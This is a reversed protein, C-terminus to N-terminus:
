VPWGSLSNSIFPLLIFGATSVGDWASINLNKSPTFLTPLILLGAWTSRSPSLTLLWASSLKSMHLLSLPYVPWLINVISSGPLLFLRLGCLLHINHILVYFPNTHCFPNYSCPSISASPGGHHGRFHASFSYGAYWINFTGAKGTFYCVTNYFFLYYDISNVPCSCPARPGMNQRNCERDMCSWRQLWLVELLSVGDSCTTWLSWSSLTGVYDEQCQRSNMQWFLKQYVHSELHKNM